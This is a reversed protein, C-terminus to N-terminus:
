ASSGPQHLEVLNGSPDNLFTQRGTGVSKPEAIDIGRRRLDAVTADLDAVHIAFHQGRAEPVELEILHVQQPGLDLWAGGFSFDPRDGRVTLGLVDTYFEVAAATDRVNISVHHIGLPQM